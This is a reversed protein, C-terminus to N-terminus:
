QWTIIFKIRWCFSPLGNIKFFELRGISSSHTHLSFSVFYRSVSIWKPLFFWGFCLTQNGPFIKLCSATTMHILYLICPASPLIFVLRWTNMYNYIMCPAPLLISGLRWSEASMVFQSRVCFRWECFLVPNSGIIEPICEIKFFLLFM